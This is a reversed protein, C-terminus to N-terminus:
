VKEGLEALMAKLGKVQELRKKEATAAKADAIAKVRAEEKAIGEPTTSEYHKWANHASEHIQSEM